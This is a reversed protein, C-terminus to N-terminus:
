KGEITQDFIFPEDLDGLRDVILNTATTPREKQQWLLPHRAGHEQKGYGNNEAIRDNSPESQAPEVGGM